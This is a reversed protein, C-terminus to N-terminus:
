SIGSDPTINRIQCIAQEVSDYMVEAKIEAEAFAKEEMPLPLGIGRCKFLEIETMEGENLSEPYVIAGFAPTKDIPNGIKVVYSKTSPPLAAFTATDGSAMAVTGSGGVLTLGVSPINVSGNTGPVTLASTTIKLADNEIEIRRNKLRAGFGNSQNSHVM